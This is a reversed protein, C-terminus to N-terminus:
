VFGVTLNVLQNRFHFISNLVEKGTLLDKVTEKNFNFSGDKKREFLKGSGHGLLEHLGM